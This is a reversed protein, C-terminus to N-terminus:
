LDSGLLYRNSIAKFSLEPRENCKFVLGEREQGPAYGIQTKGEALELLDHIDMDDICMAPNIVPAQLLGLEQCIGDRVASSVYNGLKVDYIDFVRFEHKQLKYINGQIGPGILEGQIALGFLGAGRMKEEVQYEIVTAWFSNDETRTLSLNRSCVEFEGDIPLFVTLSSGECKESVEWTLGMASWKEFQHRLNQCRPQDTRPVCSPFNGKALGSLQANVPPEYKVIGFIESVDDGEALTVSYEGREDDYMMVYTGTIDSVVPLLLGQSIQGRLRITRLRQGKMGLYEKPQQGPKTLFPARDHPIWSDIECFIALDGATYEGKRAVVNWGGVTCVEIADAGEIPGVEDITVVRAMSRESM